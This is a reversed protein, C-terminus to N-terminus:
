KQQIFILKGNISEDGSEIRFIYIGESLNLEGANFETRYVSGAETEKDFLTAIREGTLTYVEVLTHASKDARLFEITTSTTFPNPYINISMDEVQQYTAGPLPNNPQELKFTPKACPPTQPIRLTACSEGVDGGTKNQDGDHVMFQLHYTHGAQLPQGNFRLDNVIWVCEAGYGETKYAAFGGPPIDVIGKWDNKAPDAGPTVTKVPPNKTSDITTVASKWTGCVKSPPTGVGGYQWDGSNSDTPTVDTIFLAPYL